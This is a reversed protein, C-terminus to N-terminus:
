AVSTCAHKESFESILKVWIEHQGHAPIIRCLDNLTLHCILMDSFPLEHFEFAAKYVLDQAATFRVYEQDSQSITEWDIRETYYQDFWDGLPKKTEAREDTRQCFNPAGLFPHQM